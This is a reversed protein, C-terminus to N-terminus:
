PRGSRSGPGAPLNAASLDMDIFLQDGSLPWRDRDRAILAIVRANMISLQMDPHPSGDVTRSSGRTKWNDGVLGEALNLEGEELIEREGSNPRRVILALVGKETPSQRIADFGAKLM